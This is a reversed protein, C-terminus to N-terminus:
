VNRGALAVLTVFAMWMFRWITHIPNYIFSPVGYSALLQPFAEIIPVCKYWWTLLGGGIDYFQTTEFSGGEITASVNLNEMQTEDWAPIPVGEIGVQNLMIAFANICMMVFIGYMTATRIEM